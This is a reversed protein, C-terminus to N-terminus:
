ERYCVNPPHAPRDVKHWFCDNRESSPHVEPAVLRLPVSHRTALWAPYFSGLIGLVIAALGTAIM